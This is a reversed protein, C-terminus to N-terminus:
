VIWVWRTKWEVVVPEVELKCANTCLFPEKVGEVAFKVGSSVVSRSWWAHWLYIGLEHLFYTLQCLFSCYTERCLSIGYTQYGNQCSAFFFWCSFNLYYPIKLAAYFHNDVVCVYLLHRMAINEWVFIFGFDGPCSCQWRERTADNLALTQATADPCHLWLIINGGM